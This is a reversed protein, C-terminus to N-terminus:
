VTRGAVTCGGISTRSSTSSGPSSSLFLFLLFVYFFLAVAVAAVADLRDKLILATPAEVHGFASAIRM